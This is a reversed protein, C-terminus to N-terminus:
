ARVLVAIVARVVWLPPNEKMKRKSGGLVAIYEVYSYIAEKPRVTGAVGYNLGTL